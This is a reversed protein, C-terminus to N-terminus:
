IESHPLSSFYRMQASTLNSTDFNAYQAPDGEYFVSDEDPSTTSRIAPLVIVLLIPLLVCAAVVKGDGWARM